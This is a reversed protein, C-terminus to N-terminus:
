TTQVSTARQRTLCDCRANSPSPDEWLLRQRPRLASDCWRRDQASFHLPQMFMGSRDWLKRFRWAAGVSPICTGDPAQMCQLTWAAWTTFIQLNKWSFDKTYGLFTSHHKSCCQLFIWSQLKGARVVKSYVNPQTTHHTHPHTKCIAGTLRWCFVRQEFYARLFPSTKTCLVMWWAPSLAMWVDMLLFVEITFHRSRQWGTAYLGDQYEWLKFYQYCATSQGYVLTTTRAPQHIKSEQWCSQINTFEYCRHWHLIMASTGSIGSGNVLLQGISKIISYLFTPKSQLQDLSSNSCNPM